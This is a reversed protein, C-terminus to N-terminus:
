HLDEFVLLLPQERSERLLLRKVAELTRQRRQPPDLAAWQPDNAPVDLLELLAPLIPALAADLALVKGTLKERRRRPDDTADIDCYRRLLDAVPLWATAKGYSVSGAELVLWGQTRHSHTFEWTLRSKGVGPEGLLAVVQGHGAGARELTGRLVEIETERGVFRTLGRAAAAQLRTRTMAAGMLECVELPEALGKVPVPGLTRVLVYGEVLRLTDPALL